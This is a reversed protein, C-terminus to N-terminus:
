NAIVRPLLTFNDNRKEKILKKPSKNNIQNVLGISFILKASTNKAM